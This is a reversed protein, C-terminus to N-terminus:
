NSQEFLSFWEEYGQFNVSTLCVSHALRQCLIKALHSPHGKPGQQQSMRLSWLSAVGKSSHKFLEAMNLGIKALLTSQSAFDSCYIMSSSMIISSLVHYYDISIPQAPQAPAFDVKAIRSDNAVRAGGSHSVEFADVVLAKRQVAAFTKQRRSEHIELM